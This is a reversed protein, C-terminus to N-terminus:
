YVFVSISKNNCRIVWKGSLLFVVKVVTSYDEPTPVCLCSQQAEWITIVIERDKLNYYVNQSFLYACCDRVGEIKVDIEEGAYITQQTDIESVRALHLPPTFGYAILSNMMGLFFFAIIIGSIHKRILHQWYSKM